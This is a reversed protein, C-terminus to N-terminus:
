KRRRFILLAAAGLGALAFTSPEPIPALVLGNFAGATLSAPPATGGGTAQNWGLLGGSKADGTWALLVNGGALAAANFSAASGTWAVIEMQVPANAATDTTTLVKAPVGGALPAIQSVIPGALKWGATATLDPVGGIMSITTGVTSHYYAAINLQGYNALTAPNGAPFATMTTGDTTYKIGGIPALFTVTGQALASSVLACAVLTTVLIKKM